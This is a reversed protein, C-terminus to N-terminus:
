SKKRPANKDRAAALDSTLKKATSKAMDEPSVPLPPAVGSESKLDALKAMEGEVSEEAEDEDEEEEEGEGADAKERSSLSRRAERAMAQKFLRAVVSPKLDSIDFDLEVEGAKVNKM